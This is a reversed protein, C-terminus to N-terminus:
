LKQLSGICRQVEAHIDSGNAAELLDVTTHGFCVTRELPPIVVMHHQFVDVCIIAVIFNFHDFLLEITLKFCSKYQLALV